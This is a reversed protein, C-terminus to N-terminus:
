FTCAAVAIDVVVVVVIVVFIVAAVVVFFLLFLDFGQVKCQLGRQLLRPPLSTTGM